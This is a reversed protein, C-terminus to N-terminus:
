GRGIAVTCAAGDAIAKLGQQPVTAGTFTLTAGAPLYFGKGVEPTQDAACIWVAASGTNTLMVVQLRNDAALLTTASTQVAVSTPAYSRLDARAPPAATLLVAAACLCVLFLRPLRREGTEGFGKPSTATAV